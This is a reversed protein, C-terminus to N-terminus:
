LGKLAKEMAQRLRRFESELDAMQERVATLDGARSAIEMRSAVATFADGGVSASAGKITHTLREASKVNGTDLCEWLADFRLPIDELFAETLKKALEEDDMLRDMMGARDFVVPKGGNEYVPM